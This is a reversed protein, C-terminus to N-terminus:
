MCVVRCLGTYDGACVMGTHQLLRPGMVAVPAV